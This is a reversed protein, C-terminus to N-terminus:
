AANEGSAGRQLSGSATSEFPRTATEDLVPQTSHPQPNWAAWREPLDAARLADGLDELRPMAQSVWDDSPRLPGLAEALRVRGMPPWPGSGGLSKAEILDAPVQAWAQDAARFSRSPYPVSEWRHEIANEGAKRPRSRDKLTASPPMVLPPELVWVRDLRARASPPLCAVLLAGLDEALVRVARLDLRELLEALVQIHQLLRHAQPKKPKDSRGYGILDPVVVRDGRAMLIPWWAHWAHSWSRRGHLLLWAGQGSGDPRSDLRHMRLGHAAPLDSLHCSPPGQADWGVWCAEPTRLADDRLPEPKRRRSAFFARLLDACAETMPGPEVGTHANLEPLAFLNLASGAAGARPDRAGYVVRRLRAQFIAGSCMCCPELTVYLDAGTLRYNGLRRAADRLAVVEAHASPDCDVICRNHGRGVVQGELVVVAGVPVEGLAQALRAQELAQSM